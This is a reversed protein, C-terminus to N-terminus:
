LPMKELAAALIELGQDLEAPEVILPPLLRIVNGQTCNVLLGQERCADVVPAGEAELELGWMLGVGRVERIVPFRSKLDQLRDELYAGKERVATLFEPAGVIELAAKAAAALVPGGGFTSAHTGPTFAQAVEEKALLAGMPLGNALAKAVAMIDPTVGFREYAFLRGTRGMGTQVEDFVLLVERENCLRRVALLYDPDAPNVGGEGQIPELLVACTRDDVTTDLADFDNFPVFVFGPLLPEFGQRFKEQGTASLAGFTRGHFSNHMCVLRHKEPGFLEAAYRRALKLAAEVAEAGSNCFFVRDAFTLRVLEEALEIQPTTYYLNSVHVLEKLQTAAAAAVAPHAHGLNCVALGAVFDLYERGAEDWVRCGEGKVLLLPQRSYTHMLVADSRDRWSKGTM